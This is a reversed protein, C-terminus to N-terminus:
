TLFSLLAQGHILKFNSMQGLIYLILKSTISSGLFHTFIIFYDRIKDLQEKM